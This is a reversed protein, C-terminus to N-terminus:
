NNENRLEMNNYDVYLIDVLGLVFFNAGDIMSDKLTEGKVMAEKKSLTDIRAIKTEIMGNLYDFGRKAFTDSFSGGYDHNKAKYIRYMDDIVCKFIDEKKTFDYTKEEKKIDNEKGNLLALIDNALKEREEVSTEAVMKDLSLKIADDILNM